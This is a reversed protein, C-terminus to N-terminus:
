EAKGFFGGNSGGKSATKGLLANKCAIGGVGRGVTYSLNDQRPSHLLCLRGYVWSVFGLGVSHSMGKGHM